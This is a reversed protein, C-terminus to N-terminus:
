LTNVWAAAIEVWKAINPNKKEDDSNTIPNALACGHSAGTYIHMEFPVGAKAYAQALVLSNCVGVTQDDTTHM